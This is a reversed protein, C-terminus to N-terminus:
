EKKKKKALSVIIQQSHVTSYWTKVLSICQDNVLGVDDYM